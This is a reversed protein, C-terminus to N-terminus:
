IPGPEFNRSLKHSMTVSVLATGGCLVIKDVLVRVWDLLLSSSSRVNVESAAQSM